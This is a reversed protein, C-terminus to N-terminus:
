PECHNNSNDLFELADFSVNYTSGSGGRFRLTDFTAPLTCVVVQWNTGGGSTTMAAGYNASGSSAVATAGSITDSFNATGFNCYAATSTSTQLSIAKASGTGRVWIALRTCTGKSPAAAGWSLMNTNGTLTASIKVASTGHKPSSTDQIISGSTVGNTPCNGVAPNATTGGCVWNDPLGSTWSEFGHWVTTGTFDASNTNLTANDSNRTVNSV